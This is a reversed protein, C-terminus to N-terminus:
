ASKTQNPETMATANVPSTAWFPRACDTEFAVAPLSQSLTGGVKTKVFAPDESTGLLSADTQVIGAVPM